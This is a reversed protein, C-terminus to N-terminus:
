VNIEAKIGLVGANEALLPKVHKELFEATQGPARGVYLEPKLAAELEGRTVGFIPDAAVRDLLDNPLGQEKVVKAAEMSHVRIHEHLEQRDGGRKVADMIINESAM